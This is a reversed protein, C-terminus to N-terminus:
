HVTAIVMAPYSSTRQSDLLYHLLDIAEVPAAHINDLQLIVPRSAAFRRLVTDTLSYATSMNPAQVVTGGDSAKPRLFNVFASAIWGDTLEIRRLEESIRTTLAEGELGKCMLYREMAVRL